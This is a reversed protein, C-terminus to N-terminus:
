KGFTNFILVIIKGSGHDGLLNGWGGVNHIKLDEVSKM